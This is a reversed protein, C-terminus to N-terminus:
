YEKPMEKLQAQTFVPGDVCVFKEGINCRGCKGIGCKMRMELSLLIQEDRFGLEQLVPITFKIMIPPGCVLAVANRPSLGAEKTITPVYGVKKNWKEDGKDVTLILNIRKLSEWIDLDDKYCLESPERAGYIVTLEGYDDRYKDDLIYKTMSRLTSFAFGGGIIIINKGKMKEVPWGNGFPGRIGLMKGVKSDHLATTVSGVKKVTFLLFGEETPSSAIGIPSEGIGFYSLEAFQGPIYNFKTIDETENFKLKFTKLDNAENETIIDDILALKPIYPNELKQNAM